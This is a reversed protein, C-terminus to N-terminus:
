YWRNIEVIYGIEGKTVEIEAHERLYSLKEEAPIDGFELYSLTSFPVYAIDPRKEPHM